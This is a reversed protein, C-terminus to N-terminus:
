LADHLVWPGVSFKTDEVLGLTGEQNFTGPSPTVMFGAQAEGAREALLM